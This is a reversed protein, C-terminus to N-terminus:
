QVRFDVRLQAKKLVKVAAPPAEYRAPARSTNGRSEWNNSRKLM